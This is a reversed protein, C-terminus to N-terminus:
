LHGLLRSTISVKRKCTHIINEPISSHM